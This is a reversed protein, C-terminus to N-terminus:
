ALFDLRVTGVRQGARHVELRYRATDLGRFTASGDREVDVAEFVKGDRQLTVRADNVPQSGGRKLELRVDVGGDQARDVTVMADLGAMKHSFEYCEPQAAAAANGRVATALVPAPAVDSRLLNLASGALHFVARFARALAHPQEPANETLAEGLVAARDSSYPSKALQAEVEAAREDPLRGEVYLLLDDDSPEGPGPAPVPRSRTAKLAQGLQGDLQDRHKPATSM